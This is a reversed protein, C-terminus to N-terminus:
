GVKCAVEPCQDIAPSVVPRVRYDKLILIIGHHLMYVVQLAKNQLFGRDPHMQGSM